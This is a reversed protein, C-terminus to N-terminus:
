SSRDGLLDLVAAFSPRPITAANNGVVWIATAGTSTDHAYVTSFGPISGDHALQSDGIRFVGFGYAAPIGYFTTEFEVPETMTAVSDPSVVQGSFIAGLTGALAIPDSVVAGSAWAATAVSTYEFDVPVIAPGRNTYSAAPEGGDEFHALYTVPDAAPELVASRLVEHFPMGTVEEVLVGLITYNTNSYDWDSGPDFDSGGDVLAVGEEPTWVRADDSFLELFFEDSQTYDPVGSTQQLLDRVTIAPAVTVRTVYETAAVDLDITGAEVLSLVAAATLTKTVSGVRVTSEPALVSGDPAEGRV